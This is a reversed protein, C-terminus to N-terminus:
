EADNYGLTFSRGREEFENM